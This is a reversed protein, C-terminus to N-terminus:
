RQCRRKFEGRIAASRRPRQVDNNQNENVTAANSSPQSSNPHTSPESVTADVNADVTADVTPANVVSTVDNKTPAIELPIIHQVSRNLHVIKGQPSTSQVTVGRVVDDRGAILEIIRGKKWHMPKVKDEKILVVDGRILIPESRRNKDYLMSERLETTYEHYFRRWYQEILAAVYKTRNEVNVADNSCYQRVVHDGRVAINRGNMLHYPTIAELNEESLYTLPRSNMMQEIEVLITLLEDYSLKAHGCVKRLAGKVVKVLREYFGGWWPSLELIYKWRIYNRRLFDKLIAAKFSGGNDSIFQEPYGKRCLFRQIGRILTPASLDPTLELHVGRTTACTFLLVYSKHLQASKEYYNKVFLPGAFDIGTSQFAYESCVRYSPLNALPTAKLSRLRWLKCLACRNVVSTVTSRGKIIWYKQRVKNLTSEEASHMVEEHADIIILKTVHHRNPLIVPFKVDHPIDTAECLRTKSRLLSFEDEYL